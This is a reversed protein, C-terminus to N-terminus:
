LVDFFGKLSYKITFYAPNIFGDGVPGGGVGTEGRVLQRIKDRSLKNANKYMYLKYADILAQQAITDEPFLKSFITMM